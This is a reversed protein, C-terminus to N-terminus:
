RQLTAGEVLVKYTYGAGFDKDTRVVGKATVIDGPKAPDQTTVLLDNTNAAASGTGDRLHVWNTGMIQPNFKVVQGRVLVPKDKLNAGQTLIEAVTRANAGTARPVKLDGTETPKALGAHAKAMAQADMSAGGGANGLTAFLITPFTKKLARSEFNVMVMVNELTVEAGQRVPVRNIAAWTEGDKTKLRLYTYGAADRSELVVGRVITGASGSLAHSAPTWAFAAAFTMCLALLAKM